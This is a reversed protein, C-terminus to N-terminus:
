TLSSDDDKTPATEPWCDWDIALDLCDPTVNMMDCYAQMVQRPTKAPDGLQQRHRRLWKTKIALCDADSLDKKTYWELFIAMALMNCNHATHGNRKCENCQVNPLFPRCRLDPRAPCGQPGPCDPTRSNRDSHRSCDSSQNAYRDGGYHPPAGGNQGFHCDRPHDLRNVRPTYGQIHSYGFDEENMPDWHFDSATMRYARPQAIDRVHHKANNHIMMAIGDVRLNDPLDNDDDPHHFADVITQLNTVVDAYDSPAVARLFINSWDQPTYYIGKKAQLRFYLLHSQSFSLVESDKSWVPQAIPITPDFGPVYLTLVRWLLDYGNRSSNRVASITANIELDHEQLICILLEMVAIACEAYASTGLGPPFLGEYNHALCLSDFPMLPILYAGSVQQLCEYFAVTDKATRDSLKPIIALGKELIREISPGSQLTRPNYWAQRVKKHLLQISGYCPLVNDAVDTSFSQYGCKHIFSISLDSIGHEGGHYAPSALGGIDHRSINRLRAARDKNTSRPTTIAGGLLSDMDLPPPRSNLPGINGPSAAGAAPPGMGDDHCPKAGHYWSSDSRHSARTAWLDPSDRPFADPVPRPSSRDGHDRTPTRAAECTEVRHTLDTISHTVTEVSAFVDDTRKRLAPLLHGCIDNIDTRAAMTTAETTVRLGDLQALLRLHQTTAESKNEDVSM